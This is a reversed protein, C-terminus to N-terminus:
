AAAGALPANDQGQDTPTTKAAPAFEDSVPKDALDSSAGSGAQAASRQKRMAALLAAVTGFGAQKGENLILLYDAVKVLEPRHTTFVITVGAAKLVQIASFLCREGTEDLSANPEDMVVYCPDGYLARALALRQKQGGTLAFGNEGLRTDYGKPFSLIVEHIGAMAAAKVVKDSDVAGLRAVNQAISGEFFEVEQPVYGMYRGLDELAWDAVDAGDLRVAGTSPRWVGVLSKVLSSKGAASPGVIALVQGPELSFNIGDLVPRSAEGPQMVLESVNLHGTPPPLKMRDAQVEDEAFLNTLREYSQRANTIENWSSLLKQTPGIAKTMMFTAAIVMGATIMGEIALWVGLGMQLSPLAKTLFGSFGGLMGAAESAAVQMGVFGQHRDYWHKRLNAHMGLALATESQRLSQAAIRNAEASANNAERLVPSSAKQTLYTVGLLLLTASLAFLALYVHFFGSLVIFFISFPASMLALLPAGTLFQRLNVLDGLVQHVNVKKRAVFRRFSADFVDCALDWDIRLSIRVMMRRQIWELGCWFVYVGIILITLSVLTVESRSALVRDYLSLMYLIPILSLLEIVTTLAFVLTLAHKCQALVHRLPTASESTTGISSDVSSPITNVM